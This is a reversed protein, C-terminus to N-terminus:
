YRQMSEHKMLCYEVPAKDPSCWLLSELSRVEECFKVSESILINDLAEM